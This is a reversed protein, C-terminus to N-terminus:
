PPPHLTGRATLFVQIMSGRRMRGTSMKPRLSFIELVEKRLLSTRTRAAGRKVPRARASALVAASPKLDNEPAEDDAPATPQPMPRLQGQLSERLHEISLSPVGIERALIALALKVDASPEM